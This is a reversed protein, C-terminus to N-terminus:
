ESEPIKLKDILLSAHLQVMVTLPDGGGGGGGGGGGVEDPDEIGPGMVPM